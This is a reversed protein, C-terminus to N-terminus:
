CTRLADLYRRMETAWQKKQWADEHLAGNINVLRGIGVGDEVGRQDWLKRGMQGPVVEDKESIMVMMDKSVRGLVSGNTRSERMALITDWKDWALPALYRYPVWKEPYLARVMDPISAFPNELVLGKVNKFTGGEDDPLQGM